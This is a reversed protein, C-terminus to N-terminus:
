KEQPDRHGLPDVFDKQTVSLAVREKKVKRELKAWCDQSGQFEPLVETM